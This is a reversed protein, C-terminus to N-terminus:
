ANFVVEKYQKYIMKSLDEIMPHPKGTTGKMRLDFFHNWEAYNGTVVIETKIANPLLARAEQPPANFESIM